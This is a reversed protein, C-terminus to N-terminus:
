HNPKIAEKLKLNESKLIEQERKLDILHLTLEEIKKLLLMNMDGLEVGNSEMEKASPVEPLHKENQIFQAIEELSRLEYDPEFVYDPGPVSLDVRVEKAHVTGNVTLKEDPSNTGIGVKGAVYLPAQNTNTGVYVPHDTHYNLYLTGYGANQHSKGNLHRAKITGNANGGVNLHSYVTLDMDTSKGGVVVKGTNDILLGPDTTFSDFVLTGSPSPGVDQPNEYITPRISVIGSGEYVRVSGGKWGNPLLSFFVDVSGNPQQYARIRVSEYVAGYSTRLYGRFGNRNGLHIIQQFTSSSGHSGGFLEILIKDGTSNSSPPLTAIRWNREATGNSTRDFFFLKASAPNPTSQEIFSSQAYVTVCALAMLIPFIAKKM